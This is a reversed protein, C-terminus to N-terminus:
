TYNIYNNIDSLGNDVSAFPGQYISMSERTVRHRNRDQRIYNLLASAPDDIPLATEQIRQTNSKFDYLTEVEPLSKLYTFTNPRSGMLVKPLMSSGVFKDALHRVLHIYEIKPTMDKYQKKHGDGRGDMLWLVFDRWDMTQKHNENLWNMTADVFEVYALIEQYDLTANFMRFEITPHRNSLAVAKRDGSLYLGRLLRNYNDNSVKSLNNLDKLTKVGFTKLIDPNRASYYHNPPRGGVMTLFEQNEESHIFLMLKDIDTPSHLNERSTHIHIGCSSNVEIKDLIGKRIGKHQETNVLLNGFRRKINYMDMPVTVLEFGWNSAISSDSKVSVWNDGGMLNIVERMVGGNYRNSNSHDSSMMELEIGFLRHNTGKISNYKQQYKWTSSFTEVSFTYNKTSTIQHELEWKKTDYNFIISNNTGNTSSKVLHYLQRLESSVVTDSLVGGDLAEALIAYDGPNKKIKDLLSLEDRMQTYNVNSRSM